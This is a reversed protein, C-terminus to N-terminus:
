RRSAHAQIVALIADLDDQEILYYSITQPRDSGMGIVKISAPESCLEVSTSGFDDLFELLVVVQGMTEPTTRRLPNIARKVFERIESQGVDVRAGNLRAYVSHSAQISICLSRERTDRVEEPSGISEIRVSFLHGTAVTGPRLNMRIIESGQADEVRCLYDTGSVRDRHTDANPYLPAFLGGFPMPVLWSYEVPVTAWGDASTRMTFQGQEAFWRREDTGKPPVNAFQVHAYKIPNRDSLDGVWLHVPQRVTLIADAACGWNLAAVIVAASLSIRRCLRDDTDPMTRFGLERAEQRVHPLMMGTEAVIPRGVPSSVHM